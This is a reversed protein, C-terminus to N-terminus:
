GEVWGLAPQLLFDELPIGDGGVLLLRDPKFARSFAELGPLADKRRRSTVEIAALRKGSRLVFDVERSRERWYFVEVRTGAATNVLHAGVASEVLRGWFERDRRAADLDLSAPATM